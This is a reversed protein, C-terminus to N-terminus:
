LFSRSRMIAEAIDWDDMEDIDYSEGKSIPYILPKSGIRARNKQFSLKTFIYLCSNEEFWIPLDQTKILDDPDHNIPKKNHDYFRSQVKNATFLSDNDQSEKFRLLANQITAPKLLPNTTHTMIFIDSEVSMLDDEIILNMSIDDGLLHEKRDRILIKKSNNVDNEILSERADTNIIIKDISAVELLSDLVWHFLPKGSFNKFNKGKIRESNKKIPLLAVIKHKKM